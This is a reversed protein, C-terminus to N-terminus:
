PRGYITVRSGAILNGLSAAITIQGIANSQNWYGGATGSRITGTTGATNTSWQSTWRKRWATSAYNPLEITCVGSYAASASGAGPVEGVLGNSQALGEAATVTTGNGFLTEYFYNAASDGNLRMTLSLLSGANDSRAEVVVQLHAYLTPISTIDISAVAAGVVTSNALRIPLLNLQAASILDGTQVATTPWAM